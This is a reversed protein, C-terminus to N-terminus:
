SAVLQDEDTRLAGDPALTAVPAPTQPPETPEPLPEASPQSMPDAALEASPGASPEASPEAAAATSPSAPDPSLDAPPGASPIATAGPSPIATADASPVANATASSGASPDASPTASPSPSALPAAAVATTVDGDAGSTTTPPGTRVLGSSALVALVQAEVAKVEALLGSPGLQVSRGQLGQLPAMAEKLAAATRGDPLRELSAVVQVALATTVCSLCRENGAAAENVPVAVALV